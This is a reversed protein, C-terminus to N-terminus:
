KEIAELCEKLSRGEQHICSCFTEGHNSWEEESFQTKCDRQTNRPFVDISSHILVTLGLAFGFFGAFIWRVQASRFPLPHIKEKTISSSKFPLVYKLRDYNWFLIYLCALVMLPSTVLSGDFRVAISLVTINFIIPLYLLAGLLATRPILLLIAALVQFVGITTYYFGTQYLADLYHGMPHDVPLSTFRYGLVKQMGSPIFGAALLFRCLYSFYKFWKNLKFKAHLLSLKEEM